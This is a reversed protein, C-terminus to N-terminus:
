KSCIGGRLRQLLIFPQHTDCSGDSHWLVKWQQAERAMWFCGDRPRTRSRGRRCTWVASIPVTVAGDTAGWEWNDRRSPHTFHFSVHPRQPRPCRTGHTTDLSRNDPPLKLFAPVATIETCSTWTWYLCGYQVKLFYDDMGNKMGAQEICDRPHPDHFSHSCLLSYCLIPCCLLVM